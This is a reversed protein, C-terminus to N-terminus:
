HLKFISLDLQFCMDLIHKAIKIDHEVKLALLIDIIKGLIMYASNFSTCLSIAM